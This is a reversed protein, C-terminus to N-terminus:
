GGSPEVDSASAESEEGVVWSLRALTRYSCRKLDDRLKAKLAEYDERGTYRPHVAPPRVGLETVNTFDSYEAYTPHVHVLSTHRHSM